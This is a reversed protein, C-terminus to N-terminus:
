QTVIYAPHGMITMALSSKGSGNKGLICYNKGLEFTATLDSIISKHEVEVSLSKTQLMHIQDNIFSLAQLKISSAIDLSYSISLCTLIL